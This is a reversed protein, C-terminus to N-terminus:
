VTGTFWEVGLLLQVVMATLPLFLNVIWLLVLAIGLLGALYAAIDILGVLASLIVSLLVLGLGITLLPSSTILDILAFM